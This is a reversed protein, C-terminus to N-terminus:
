ILSFFLPVVSTEVQVQGPSTYTALEVEAFVLLECPKPVSIGERM